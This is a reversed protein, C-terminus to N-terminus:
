KFYDKKKKLDVEYIQHEHCSCNRMLCNGNELLHLPVLYSMSIGDVHPRLQYTVVEKMNENEDLKWLKIYSTRRFGRDCSIKIDYKVCVHICDSKVMITAFYNHSANSNDDVNPTEIKSLRETKTDFRIISSLRDASNLQLFYLNENFYTGRRRNITYLRWTHQFVDVKRWSDSRLAYIHVKDDLINVFLLKYDDECCSYYFGFLSWSYPTYNCEKRSNSKSLRKYENTLPNLIILNSYGVDGKDKIIGLCVLGYFSTLIRIDHPTTDGFQPLPRRTPTLGKYSPAAECDITIFEFLAKTKYFVLLKLNNEHDHIHRDNNQNKFTDSTLFSHWEKLVCKFPYVSKAPIRPLIHNSVVDHPVHVEM